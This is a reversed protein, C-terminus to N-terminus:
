SAREQGQNRKEKLLKRRESIKQEIDAKQRKLDDIVSDAVPARSTLWRMASSLIKDYHEKDIDDHIKWEGVGNGSREENELHSEVWTTLLENRYLGLREIVYELTVKNNLDDVPVFNEPQDKSGDVESAAVNVQRTKPNGAYRLRGYAISISGNPDFNGAVLDDFSAASGTITIKGDKVGMAIAGFKIGAMGLERYEPTSPLRLFFHQRKDYSTQKERM